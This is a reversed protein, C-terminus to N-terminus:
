KFLRYYNDLTLKRTGKKYLLIAEPTPYNCLYFNKVMFCNNMKTREDETIVETSCFGVQTLANVARDAGSHIDNPTVAALFQSGKGLFFVDVLDNISQQTIKGWFKFANGGASEIYCNTLVVTSSLAEGSYIYHLNFFTTNGLHGNDSVTFAYADNPNLIVEAAGPGLQLGDDTYADRFCYLVYHSMFLPASGGSKWSALKSSLGTISGDAFKDVLPQGTSIFVDTKGDDFVRYGTASAPTDKVLLYKDNNSTFDDASTVRWYGEVSIEYNDVNKVGTASINNRVLQVKNGAATYDRTFVKGDADTFELRYGGALNVPPVVLYYDTGPLIDGTLGVYNVGGPNLPSLTVDTVTGNSVVPTLSFRGSLKTGDLARFIIRKIGANSHTTRYSIKIYSVANRFQVKKGDASFGVAVNANPAFSGPTAAQATPIVVNIKGGSLSASSSYPYLAYINTLDVSQSSVFSNNDGSKKDFRVSSSSGAPFVALADNADWNITTGNYTAKTANSEQYAELVTVEAEVPAEPGPAEKSCSILLAIISIVAISIKFKNMM